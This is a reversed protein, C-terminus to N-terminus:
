LQQEMPQRRQGLVAAHGRISLIAGASVKVDNSLVPHKLKMQQHDGSPVLNTASM